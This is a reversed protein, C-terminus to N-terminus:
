KILKCRFLKKLLSRFRLQSLAQQPWHGPFCLIESFHLQGFALDFLTQFSPKHGFALILFLPESVVTTLWSPESHLHGFYKSYLTIWKPYYISYYTYSHIHYYSMVIVILAQIYVWAPTGKWLLCSREYTM